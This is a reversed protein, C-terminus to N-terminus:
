KNETERILISYMKDDYEYQRPYLVSYPTLQPDFYGQEEMWRKTKSM